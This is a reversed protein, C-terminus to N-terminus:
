RSEGSLGELASREVKTAKPPVSKFLQTEPFDCLDSDSKSPFCVLSVTLFIGQDYKVAFAFCYYISNQMYFIFGRKLLM